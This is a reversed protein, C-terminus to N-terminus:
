NKLFIPVQFYSIDLHTPMPVRHKIRESLALFDVGRGLQVNNFLEDLHSKTTNDLNRISGSSVSEGVPAIVVGM